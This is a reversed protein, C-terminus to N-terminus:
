LIDALVLPRRQSKWEFGKLIFDKVRVQSMPYFVANPQAIYSVRDAKGDSTFSMNIIGAASKNVGTYAKKEDQVFYM